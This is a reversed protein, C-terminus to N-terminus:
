KLVALALCSQSILCYICELLPSKHVIEKFGIVRIFKEQWTYMGVYISDDTSVTM